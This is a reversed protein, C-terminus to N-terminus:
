GKEFSDPPVDVIGLEVVVLTGGLKVVYEVAAAAHDEVPHLLGHRLATQYVDRGPDDVTGTAPHPNKHDANRIDGVVVIELCRLLLLASGATAVSKYKGLDIAVIVNTSASKTIKNM